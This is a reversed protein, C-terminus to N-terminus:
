KKIHTRLHAQRCGSKAFSKDCFRCRYPREGSHAARLHENLRSRVAYSAGCLSCPHPRAALHVRRHHLSLKNLAVFTKDCLRCSFPKVRLHTLSHQKHAGKTFFAKGCLECVFQRGDHRRAHETLERLLTFSEGCASCLHAESAAHTKMHATYASSYHYAAGCERCQFRGAKHKGRHRSLTSRNRFREGCVPCAHPREGTHSRLHEDLSRQTALM